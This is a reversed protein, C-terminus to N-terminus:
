IWSEQLDISTVLSEFYMNAAAVIEPTLIKSQLLPSKIDNMYIGFKFFTEFTSSENLLLSNANTYSSLTPSLKILIMLKLYATSICALPSVLGSGVSIILPGFSWM